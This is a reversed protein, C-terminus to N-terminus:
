LSFCRPTSSSAVEKGPNHWKGKNRVKYHKTNLLSSVLIMKQTKQYSKIESQVWTKQVLTSCEIKGM